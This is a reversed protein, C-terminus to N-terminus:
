KTLRGRIQAIAAELEAIVFLWESGDGLTICLRERKGGSFFRGTGPAPGVGAVFTLAVSFRAGSTRASKPEFVVHTKTVQLEGPVAVKGMSRAARWTALPKEDTM